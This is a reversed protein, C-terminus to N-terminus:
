LNERVLGEPPRFEPLPELGPHRELREIIEHAIWRRCKLLPNRMRVLGVIPIAVVGAGLLVGPKAQWNERNGTDVIRILRSGQHMIALMEPVTRVSARFVIEDNSRPIM